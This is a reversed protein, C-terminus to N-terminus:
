SLLSTGSPGTIRQLTTRALQQIQAPLRVYGNAASYAQEVNDRESVRDRITLQPNQQLILLTAPVM